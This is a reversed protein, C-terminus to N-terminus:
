ITPLNANVFKEMYKWKPVLNEIYSREMQKYLDNGNIM